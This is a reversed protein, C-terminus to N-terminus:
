RETLGLDVLINRTAQIYFNRFDGMSEIPKLPRINTCYFYVRDGKEVYGVYWGIYQDDLKSLGTKGRMIYDEGTEVCILEKTTQIHEKKFPLDEKHLRVLFDIQQMPTIQLSNDLWFLDIDDGHKQNGFGVKDLYTQYYNSDMAYVERAVEQFFWLASYQVASKITQDMNWKDWGRDVGDWKKVFNTDPIVGSELAILSNFIKFTSAPCFYSNSLSDNYILYQDNVLDYLIFHGIYQDHPFHRDLNLYSTNPYQNESYAQAKKQVKENSCAILLALILYPILHKRTM